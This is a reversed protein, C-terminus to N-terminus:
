SCNAEGGTETSLASKLAEGSELLHFMSCRRVLAALARGLRIAIGDCVAARRHHIRVEEDYHLPEGSSDRQLVGAPGRAGAIRINANEQRTPHELGALVDGLRQGEFPRAAVFRRRYTVSDIEERPLTVWLDDNCVRFTQLM